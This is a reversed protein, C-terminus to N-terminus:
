RISLTHGYHKVGQATAVAFVLEWKGPMHFLLGDARWANDGLKSISPKYNMGHRHEPMQADVSLETIPVKACARIELAFHRDVGAGAPEARWAITTGDPAEIRGDDRANRGVDCAPADASGSGAASAMDFTMAIATTYQIGILALPIAFPIALAIARTSAARTM